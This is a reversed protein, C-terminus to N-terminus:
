EMKAMKEARESRKEMKQQDKAIRFQIVYSELQLRFLLLCVIAVGIGIFLFIIKEGEGMPSSFIMRFMGFTSLATIGTGLWWLITVLVPTLFHTFGIDSNGSTSTSTAGVGLGHIHDAITKDEADAAIILTDPSIHGWQMREKLQQETIPGRKQNAEDFYYYYAVPNARTLPSPLFSLFVCGDVLRSRWTTRASKWGM